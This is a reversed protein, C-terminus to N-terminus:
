REPSKAGREILIEAVYPVVNAALIRQGAANPHIGDEQNLAPDAAVGELLFPLLMVGTERALKPYIARFAEVYDPGYSPPITMGALLVGAGADYSKLITERLNERSMSVPLGRLGDNGGLAIVVVDPEQRLLWELRSLGGASTDGSVGANLVRVEIGRERLGERVLAPYAQGAELGLGATLSDGLFIVLPGSGEVPPAPAEHSPVGPEAPPTVSAASREAPPAPGPESDACGALLLLALAAGTRSLSLQM